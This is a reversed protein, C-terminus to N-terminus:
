MILLASSFHTKQSRSTISLTKNLVEQCSCLASIREVIILKKLCRIITWSQLVKYQHSRSSVSGEFHRRMNSQEIPRIHILCYRVGM